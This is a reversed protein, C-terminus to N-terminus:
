GIFHRIIYEMIEYYTWGEGLKKAVWRWNNYIWSAARKVRAAGWKWAMTLVWRAFAWAASM